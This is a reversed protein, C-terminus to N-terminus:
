PHDEVSLWGEAVGQEIALLLHPPITETDFPRDAVILGALEDDIEAAALAARDVVFAGGFPARKLAIGARLVLRM